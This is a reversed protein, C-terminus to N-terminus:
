FIHGLNQSSEQSLLTVGRYKTAEGLPIFPVHSLTIGPGDHHIHTIAASHSSRRASWVGHLLLIISVGGTRHKFRRQSSWLEPRRKTM